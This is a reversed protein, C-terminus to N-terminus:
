LCVRVNGNQISGDPPLFGPSVGRACRALCRALRVASSGATWGVLVGLVGLVCLDYAILSLIRKLLCLFDKSCFFFPTHIMHWLKSSTPPLYLM